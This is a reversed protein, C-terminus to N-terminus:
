RDCGHYNDAQGYPGLDFGQRYTQGDWEFEVATVWQGESLEVTRFTWGGMQGPFITPQRYPQGNHDPWEGSFRTAFERSGDTIIWRAPRWPAAVPQTGANKVFLDVQFSRRSFVPRPVGALPGPGYWRNECEYHPHIFSVELPRAPSPPPAAAVTPAVAPRPAAPPRPNSGAPQLRIWEGAVWGTKGPSLRLEFWSAELNRGVVDFQQGQEIVAMVPQGTGPGERANLTQAEVVAVVNSPAAPTATNAPTPAIPTPLPRGGANEAAPRTPSPAVTIRRPPTSVPVSLALPATASPTATVVVPAVAPAM